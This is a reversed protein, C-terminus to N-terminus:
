VPGIQANIKMGADRRIADDIRSAVPQRFPRKESTLDKELLCPNPASAAGALIQAHKWGSRIKYKKGM